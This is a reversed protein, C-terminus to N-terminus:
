YNFPTQDNITFTNHSRKILQYHTQGVNYYENQFEFMVESRGTFVTDTEYGSKLTGHRTFNVYGKDSTYTNFEHLDYNLENKFSYSTGIVEIEKSILTKGQNGSAELRVTYIGPKQFIHEPNVEVANDSGDGFDWKYHGCNISLNQFVTKEGAESSGLIQFNVESHKVCSALILCMLYITKQM